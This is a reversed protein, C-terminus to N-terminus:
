PNVQMPDPPHLVIGLRIEKNLKLQDSAAMEALTRLYPSLPNGFKKLCLINLAELAPEVIMKEAEGKVLVLLDIDSGPSEKQKAISGFLVLKEIAPLPLSQRLTTKLDELPTSIQSFSEVIKSFLEFAYSQRNTKWLFATGARTVAVFNIAELERMIRNVSMHSVDLIRAMERESMLSENKLLFEIIKLKVPSYLFALPSTQFIMIPEIYSSHSLQLM